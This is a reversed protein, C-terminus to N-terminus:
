RTNESDGIQVTPKPDKNNVEIKVSEFAYEERRLLNVQYGVELRLRYEGNPTGAPISIILKESHCGVQFRRTTSLTPIVYDGLFDVKIHSELDRYKCYDFNLIVAGGAQVETPSAPIPVEVELIEVPSFLLYGIWLVFFIAVGIIALAMRQVLKTTGSIVKTRM